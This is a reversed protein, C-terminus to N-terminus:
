SLAPAPRGDDAAFADVASAANRDNPRFMNMLTASLGDLAGGSGGTVLVDPMIDIEGEAIAGAIAM